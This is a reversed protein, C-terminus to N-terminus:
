FRKKTIVSVPECKIITDIFIEHGSEFDVDLAASTSENENDIPTHLPFLVEKVEEKEVIENGYTMQEVFSNGDDVMGTSSENQIFTGM